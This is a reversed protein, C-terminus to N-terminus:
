FSIEGWMERGKLSGMTVGKKGGCHAGVDGLEYDLIEKFKKFKLSTPFSLVLLLWKRSPVSGQLRSM